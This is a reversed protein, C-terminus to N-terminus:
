ARVIRLFEEYSRIYDDPDYADSALVLLVADATYHFQAAWVLPPVYLGLDPRDLVVEDREKGDDVMVRVSGRLCVLFQQLKRHAHEGRIEQGPVDFIVFYRRPAFPLHAEHQGFTLNGRLDHVFPMPRLEVGPVSPVRPAQPRPAGREGEGEAKIPGKGRTSVYGTIRAPNGTVIANPPVDQTVVAGAGVMANVGITRGALVTANAGVTAGRRVLTRAFEQPHVRSRPFLDNTFTANPGVFVDDELTIGNWLQVGSKVTVRDGVKVGGEIFVHDCINCDAGVAAGSLLHTFAWIRTGAGVQAGGDVLATPHVHIAPETAPVSM